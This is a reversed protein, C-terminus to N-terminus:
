TSFYIHSFLKSAILIISNPALLCNSPFSVVIEPPVSLRIELLIQLCCPGKEEVKQKDEDICAEDHTMSMKKIQVKREGSKADFPTQM